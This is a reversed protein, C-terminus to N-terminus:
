NLKEEFKYEGLNEDYFLNYNKNKECFIEIELSTSITSINKTAGKSYYSVKLISKGPFVYFVVTTLGKNILLPAKGDVSHITLVSTNFGYKIQTYIKSFEHNKEIFKNVKSTQIKIRIVRIVFLIVLVVLVLVFMNLDM